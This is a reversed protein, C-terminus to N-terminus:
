CRTRSLAALAFGTWQSKSPTRRRPRFRRGSCIRLGNSMSDSPPLSDVYVVPPGNTETVIHPPISALATINSASIVRVRRITDGIQPTRPVAPPPPAALMIKLMANPLAETYILPVLILLGLLFTQAAASLAVTWRKHTKSRAASSVVLQDFM